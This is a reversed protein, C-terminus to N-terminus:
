DKFLWPKLLQTVRPMVIFTLLVVQATVVVLTQLWPVLLMLWDHFLFNVAMVLVYVVVILVLAMKIPPATKHGPLEPLDFWFELGTGRHTRPEGIVLDDLKDLWQQRLESQEWAQCHAYSDFRYISVYEDNTAASPRLVSTGLHGPYSAAANIVGSIWQEYDRERGAIVKRSISVTVQGESGPQCVDCGAKSLPNTDDISPQSSM